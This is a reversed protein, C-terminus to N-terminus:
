AVVIETDSFLVANVHVDVGYKAGLESMIPCAEVIAKRFMAVAEGRTKARFVYVSDSEDGDIRGVVACWRIDSLKKNGM